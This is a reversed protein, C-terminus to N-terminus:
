LLIKIVVAVCAMVFTAMIFSTIEPPMTVFFTVLSNGLGSIASVFNKFGNTVTSVSFDFSGPNITGTGNDIEKNANIAQNYFFEQDAPRVTYTKDGYTFTLTQNMGNNAKLNFSSPNYFLMMDRATNSAFMFMHGEIASIEYTGLLDIYTLDYNKSASYVNSNGMVLKDSFNFITSYLNSKEYTRYFYLRYDCDSGCDLRPELFIGNKYSSLDISLFGDPASIGDGMVATLFTVFRGNAAVPNKQYYDFRGTDVNVIVGHDNPNWFWTGLHKFLDTLWNSDDYFDLNNNLRALVIKDYGGDQKSFSMAGSKSYYLHSFMRGMDDKSINTKGEKILGKAIDTVGLFNANEDFIVYFIKNSESFQYSIYDNYSYLYSSTVTSVRLIYYARDIFDAVDSTQISVENPSMISLVNGTCANNGDIAPNLGKSENYLSCAYDLINEGQNGLFKAFETGQDFEYFLNIYDQKTTYVNGELTRANVTLFGTCFFFVSLVLGIFVHRKM